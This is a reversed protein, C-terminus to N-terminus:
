HETACKDLPITYRNRVIHKFQFGDLNLMRNGCM